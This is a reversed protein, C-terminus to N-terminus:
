GTGLPQGGVRLRFGLSRGALITAVAAVSPDSQADAPGSSQTRFTNRQLWQTHVMNFLDLNAIVYQGSNFTDLPHRDTSAAASSDFLHDGRGGPEDSGSQVRQLPQMEIDGNDGPNAARREGREEADYDQRLHAEEGVLAPNAGAAATESTEGGLKRRELSVALMVVQLVWVLVDTAVLRFKNVPSMQGVFDIIM